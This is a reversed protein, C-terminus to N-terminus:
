AIKCVTTVSPDRKGMEWLALAGHTVGLAKALDRQTLGADARAERIRDGVSMWCM